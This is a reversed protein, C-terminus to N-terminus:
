IHSWILMSRQVFEQGAIVGGSAEESKRARMRHVVDVGDRRTDVILHDFPRQGRAVFRVLPISRPQCSREGATPEQSRPPTPCAAPPPASMHPSPLWVHAIPGCTECHSSFKRKHPMSLARIGRHTTSVKDGAM